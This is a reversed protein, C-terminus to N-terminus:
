HTNDPQLAGKHKLHNKVIRFIISFKQCSFTMSFSPLLTPTAKGRKYWINYLLLDKYYPKSFQRVSPTILPSSQVCFSCTFMGNIRNSALGQYYQNIASSM